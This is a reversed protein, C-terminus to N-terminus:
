ENDTEGKNLLEMAKNILILKQKNLPTQKYSLLREKNHKLRAAFIPDNRDFFAGFTLQLENLTMKGPELAIIDYFKGNDVITKDETIKYGSETLTKRVKFVDNQPSIIVKPLVRGALIHLVTNGGMGSIVTVDPIIGGLADLGDGLFYEANDGLLTKAKNLCFESIDAALIRKAKGSLLVMQCLLGHDCGIDAFVDTTPILAFIENLRM